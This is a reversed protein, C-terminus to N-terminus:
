IYDSHVCQQKGQVNKGKIINRCAMFYKGDM